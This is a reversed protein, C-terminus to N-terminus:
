SRSRCPETAPVAESSRSSGSESSAEADEREGGMMIRVTRHIDPLFVHELELVWVSRGYQTNAREVEYLVWQGVEVGEEGHSEVIMGESPGIGEHVIRDIMDRLTGDAEPIYDPVM